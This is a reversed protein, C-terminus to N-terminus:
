RALRPLVDKGFAEIARLADAQPMGPPQIRLIVGDAGMRAYADLREACEQPSGIVSRAAIDDWEQAYRAADMSTRKWDGYADYLGRLPEELAARAQQGTPACYGERCVIVEAGLTDPGREYGRYAAIKAPLEADTENFSTTWGDCMLATRELAAPVRGGNWIRPRPRQVPRPALFAEDLTTFRGKHSVSDETWLRKVLDLCETFRAVRDRPETGYLAFEEPRYGLVFGATLRGGSLVDIHALTEALWAPHYVPAILGATALGIRDTHAALWTLSTLAEHYGPRHLHREGLVVWDFGAEEALRAQEVADALGPRDARDAYLNVYLGLRM